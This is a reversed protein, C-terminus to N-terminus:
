GRYRQRRRTQKRGLGRRGFPGDITNLTLRHDM